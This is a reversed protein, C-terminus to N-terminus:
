ALVVPAGGQASAIESLAAFLESEDRTNVWQAGNHKYHFGGSKAAVWLERMPTQSNVIIKSGNDIFEIQLVNGSRSCEVDLLDVDNLRDFAAEIAALTAEAQVLFESESM